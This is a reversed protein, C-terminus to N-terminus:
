AADGLVAALLKRRSAVWRGGIKKAPLQGTTLLHFTTRQERGIVKAINAVEWVIDSSELEDEM